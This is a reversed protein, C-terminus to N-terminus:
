HCLRSGEAPNDIWDHIIQVGKHEEVNVRDTEIQYTGLFLQCIEGFSAQPFSFSSDEIKKWRSRSSLLDTDLLVKLINNHYVQVSM